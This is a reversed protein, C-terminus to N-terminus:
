NDDRMSVIGAIRQPLRKHYIVNDTNFDLMKDVMGRFPEKLKRYKIILEKEDKNVTIPDVENVFFSYLPEGLANSIKILSGLRIGRKGNELNSIFFTSLEAREALREQSLGKSKRIKKIKKGIENVSIM